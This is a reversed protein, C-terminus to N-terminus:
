PKELRLESEAVLASLEEEMKNVADGELGLLQAEALAKLMLLKAAATRPEPSSDYDLWAERTASELEDRAERYWPPNDDRFDDLGLLQERAGVRLSDAVRSRHLDINQRRVYHFFARRCEEYHRRANWYIDL